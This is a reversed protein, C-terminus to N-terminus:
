TPPGEKGGRVRAASSGDGQSFRDRRPPNRDPRRFGSDQRSPCRVKCYWPEPTPGPGAPCSGRRLSRSFVPRPTSCSLGPVRLPPLTLGACLGPTGSFGKCGWPSFLFSLTIGCFGDEGFGSKLRTKARRDGVGDGSDIALSPARAARRYPNPRRLIAAHLPRQAQDADPVLPRDPKFEGAIGSEPGRRRRPPFLGPEPAAPCGARLALGGAGVPRIGPGARRPAERPPAVRGVRLPPHRVVAEPVPVAPRPPYALRPLRLGRGVRDGSQAPIRPPRQPDQILAARDAVYFCDCDFNTFMWKHPNFCYSDAFELGDQLHRYEPCLAATGAMAGDVHLWLGERRCIRGIEPLPDIANSSTTGITACVFCPVGAPRATERSRTQWRTRGCPLDSTWRSSGCTRLAWARCDEGGKEVSSHTQTSAYAVLRGDCGRETARSIPPGSAPPWCPACPRRELRQGPDSWGGEGDSKFQEPLGLMEVLWDLVHTELETCAPSTAWLMGQVGLGASLLEGLISPASTNAPFFAFFNPSQWHTLGPLLIKDVDQLIAEFSEGRHPPNAPLCARIDGPKVRSLVPLSEVRQFYDAIWDVVARGHRRFEEPTMHFSKEDPM